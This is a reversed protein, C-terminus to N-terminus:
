LMQNEEENYYDNAIFYDLMASKLLYQQEKDNIAPIEKLLKFHPWEENDKGTFEYYGYPELITCIAIHFIDQKENKSYKKYGFGLENVGIMYLLAKLDMGEGYKKEFYKRLKQFRMEIEYDM